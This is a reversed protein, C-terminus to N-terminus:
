ISIYYFIAILSYVSYRASFYVLFFFMDRDNRENM